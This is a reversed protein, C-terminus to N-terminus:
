DDTEKVPDGGNTARGYVCSSSTLLLRKGFHASWYCVEATGLTMTLIAKKPSQLLNAFGVISALHFVADHQKVLGEVLSENAVSGRVYQVGKVPQRPNVDLSTVQDGQRLLYAALHSAIFGSGGSILFRM